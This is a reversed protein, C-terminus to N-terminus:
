IENRGWLELRNFWLHCLHTGLCVLGHFLLSHLDRPGVRLRNKLRLLWLRSLLGLRDDCLTLGNCGERRRFRFLIADGLGASTFSALQAWCAALSVGAASGTRSALM